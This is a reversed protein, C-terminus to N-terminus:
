RESLRVTDEQRVVDINLLDSITQLLEDLNDARFSGMLKREALAPSDIQVDVGYTEELMQAVDTLKTEEFVFRKERWLSFSPAEAALKRIAQNQRNFTVLEGPKMILEKPTSERGTTSRCKGKTSSSM